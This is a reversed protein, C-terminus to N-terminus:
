GEGESRDANDLDMGPTGFGEIHRGGGERRGGERVGIPMTSTGKGKGRSQVVRHLRRRGEGRGEQGEWVL